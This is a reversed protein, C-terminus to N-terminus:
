QRHTTPLCGVLWARLLWLFTSDPVLFMTRTKKALREEWFMAYLHASQSRLEDHAKDVNAFLEAVILWTLANFSAAIPVRLL